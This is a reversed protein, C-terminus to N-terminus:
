NQNPFYKKWNEFEQPTLLESWWRPIGHGRTGWVLVHGHMRVGKSECFDVIQDTSPRRWHWQVQPDQCNNWWEETDRESTEFRPKGREWELHRWYFPVTASNFLEGYSRKYRENYETKGLQNFNFIHAGFYFEHSIQEIKVDRKRGLNELVIEGDAKRYKEIDADIRAQEEANWIKWYAESMYGKKDEAQSRPFVLKSQAFSASYAFIACLLVISKKM